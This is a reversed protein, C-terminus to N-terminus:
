PKYVQAASINQNCRARIVQLDLAPTGSVSALIANGQCHVILETGDIENIGNPWSYVEFFIEGNEEPFLELHVQLPQVGIILPQGWVVNKFRIMVKGEAVTTAAVLTVAARAMELSVAIPM